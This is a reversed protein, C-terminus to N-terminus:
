REFLNRWLEFLLQYDKSERCMREFRDKFKIVVSEGKKSVCDQILTSSLRLMHKTMEDDYLSRKYMTEFKDIMLDINQGTRWDLELNLADIYSVNEDYFEPDYVQTFTMLKRFLEANGTSSSLELVECLASRPFRHTPKELWKDILEELQEEDREDLCSYIEEILEHQVVNIQAQSQNRRINERRLQNFKNVKRQTLDSIFTEM